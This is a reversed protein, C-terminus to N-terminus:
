RRRFFNGFSPTPPNAQLGIRSCSYVAVPVSAQVAPTSRRNVRADSTTPKRRRSFIAM